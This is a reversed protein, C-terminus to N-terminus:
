QVFPINFVGNTIEHTVQTGLAPNTAVHTSFSGTIRSNSYNVETIVLTGSNLPVTSLENSYFVDYFAGNPITLSITNATSNHPLEHTGVTPGDFKITVNMNDNARTASISLKDLLIGSSIVENTFDYHVGDLDFSFEDLSTITPTPEQQCGLSVILVSVFLLIKM